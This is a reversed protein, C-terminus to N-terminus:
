CSLLLLLLMCSRYGSAPDASQLMLPSLTISLCWSRNRKDSLLLQLPCAVELLAGAGRLYAFKTGAVAAGAEFDILGLSEGLQVHDKAEFDFQRCV